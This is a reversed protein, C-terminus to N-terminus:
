PFFCQILPHHTCCFHRYLISLSSLLSGCPTKLTLSPSFTHFFPPQFCHFSTVPFFTNFLHIIPALISIVIFYPILQPSPLSGLLITFIFLFNFHQIFSHRCTPSVQLHSFFLTRFHCLPFSFTLSIALLSLLPTSPPLSTLHLFIHARASSFCLQLFALLSLLFHLLSTCPPSPSLHHSFQLVSDCNVVTSFICKPVNPKLLPICSVFTAFHLYALSTSFFVPRFSICM